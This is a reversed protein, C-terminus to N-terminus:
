IILWNKVMSYISYRFGMGRVSGPWGGLTCLIGLFRSRYICRSASHLESRHTYGILRCSLVQLSRLVAGGLGEQRDEKM